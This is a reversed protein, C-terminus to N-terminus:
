QNAGRPKSPAVIDAVSATLAARKCAAVAPQTLGLRNVTM